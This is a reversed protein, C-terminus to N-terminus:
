PMLQQLISWESAPSLRYAASPPRRRVRTREVALDRGVGDGGRDAVGPVSKEQCDIERFRDCLVMRTHPKRFEPRRRRREGSRGSSSTLVIRKRVVDNRALIKGFGRNGGERSLTERDPLPSSRAETPAAFISVRVGSFSGENRHCGPRRPQKDIALSFDKRFALLSKM